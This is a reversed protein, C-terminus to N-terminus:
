PIAEESNLNVIQCHARTLNARHIALEADAESIFLSPSENHGCVQARGPFFKLPAGAYKVIFAASM